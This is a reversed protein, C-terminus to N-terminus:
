EGVDWLSDTFSGSPDYRTGSTGGATTTLQPPSLNVRVHLVAGDVSVSTPFTAPGGPLYPLLAAQTLTTVSSTPHDALYTRQATYVSRLTESGARGLKWSRASGSVSMGVGMLAILICIVLSIELLTFGGCRTSSTSSAKM